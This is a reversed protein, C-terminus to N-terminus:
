MNEGLYVSGDGCEAADVAAQALLLVALGGPTNAEVAYRRSSDRAEQFNGGHGDHDRRRAHWRGADDPWIRWDPFATQVQDPTLNPTADLLAALHEGRTSAMDHAIM